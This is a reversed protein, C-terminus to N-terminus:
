ATAPTTTTCRGSSRGPRTRISRTPPRSIPTSRASRSTRKEANYGAGTLVLNDSSGIGITITFQQTGDPGGAQSAIQVTFTYTGAKAPTGTIMWEVDPLGLQLGPPLSGAVVSMLYANTEPGLRVIRPPKAAGTSM